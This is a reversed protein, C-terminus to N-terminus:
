PNAIFTKIEALTGVNSPSRCPSEEVGDLAQNADLTWVRDYGEQDIPKSDDADLTMVFVAVNRRTKHMPLMEVPIRMDVRGPAFDVYMNVGRRVVDKALDQKLMRVLQNIVAGGYRHAPEDPNYLNRPYYFIVNEVGPTSGKLFGIVREGRRGSQMQGQNMTVVIETM